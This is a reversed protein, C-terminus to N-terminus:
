IDIVKGAFILSAPVPNGAEGELRASDGFPQGAAANLGQAVKAGQVPNIYDVGMVTEFKFNGSGVKRIDRDYVAAQTRSVWDLPGVPAGVDDGTM